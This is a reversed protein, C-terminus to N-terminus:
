GATKELTDHGLRLVTAHITFMYGQVVSGRKFNFPIGERIPSVNGDIVRAFYYIGDTHCTVTLSVLLQRCLATCLLM